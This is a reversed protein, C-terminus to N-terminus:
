GALTSKRTTHKSSPLTPFKVTTGADGAKEGLQVPNTSVSPPPLAVAPCGKVFREPLAAYRANLAQQKREAIARCDGTFVQAPTFGVLGSHHHEEPLLARPQPCDKRSRASPDEPQASSKQWADVTSRNLGLADCALALPVRPPRQEIVTIM